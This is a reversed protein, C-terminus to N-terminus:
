DPCNRTTLGCSCPNGDGNDLCAEYDGTWWGPCDIVKWKCSIGSSESNEALAEINELFLDSSIEVMQASYLNYGSLAVVAVFVM